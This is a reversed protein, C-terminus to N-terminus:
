KPLNSLSLTKARLTASIIRQRAAWNSTEPPQNPNKTSLRCSQSGARTRLFQTATSSPISMNRREMNQPCPTTLPVTRRCSLASESRTTSASSLLNHTMVYKGFQLTQDSAIVKLPGSPEMGKASSAGTSSTSQAIASLPLALAALAACAALMQNAM